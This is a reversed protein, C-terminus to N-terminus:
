APRVEPDALANRGRPVSRSLSSARLALAITLAAVALTWSTEFPTPQGSGPTVVMGLPVFWVLGLRSQALAAVVVLLAFYHLWVIPTLALAATVACIFATREDGQRALVITAGVFALGIALWVGRAVDSPLGVDLGVIYATYSDDGVADELDRVIGPYEAMGAFGVVAWSGVLVVVGVLVAAAAAAIRRTAGLWVVLPWLFFKAALTVGVAAGSAAGRERFRWALAAALALWLTVNATQIASLVPPWLLMLGYCRWDRVDLFFPVALAVLVLLAMALVGAIELSFVTLPTAGLAPLPPYPFPGGWTTADRALYPDEGALIAEAARYFQLFDTAVVGDAWASLFLGVIVVAPLLAFLAISVVRGLGVDGTSIRSM